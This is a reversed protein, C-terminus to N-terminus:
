TRFRVRGGVWWKVYLWKDIFVILSERMRSGKTSKLNEPGQPMQSISTQMNEMFYIEILYVWHVYM